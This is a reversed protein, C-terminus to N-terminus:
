PTRCSIIKGLISEKAIFGFERSDSSHPRNDGLLFYDNTPITLEIGETMFKAGVASTSITPSLYPEMLLSGNIYVKNDRIMIRETPLGIIRKVLQIEEGTGSTGIFLIVDGRIPLSSQYFSADSICWSRNKYNPEMASGHFEFEFTSNEQSTNRRLLQTQGFSNQGSFLSPIYSSLAEYNFVTLGIILIGVVVLIKRM